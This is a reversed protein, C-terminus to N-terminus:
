LEGYILDKYNIHLLSDLKKSDLWGEPVDTKGELSPWEAEQVTAGYQKAIIEALEKLSHRHGGINFIQNKTDAHVVANLFINCIDEVHTFTRYGDGRGYLTIVGNEEAQKKLVSVIGYDSKENCISGFPIAIRFITFDVGYANSYVKLYQEAAIKNVAYISKAELESKEMLREGVSKYVLRSSPYVVRCTGNNRVIGDLLAILNKENVDLFDSYQEFGKVSGTLGSFFYVQDCSFDIQDISEPNSFDICQYEKDKWNSYKHFGYLYVKMDSQRELYQIFSKALSSNAGIIAIKRM